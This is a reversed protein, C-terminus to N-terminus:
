TIWSNNRTYRYPGQTIFEDKIGSTNKTGLTHVGWYFLMTGLIILPIAILFRDPSLLIWRDWDIFILLANLGFVMYFLVWTIIFQWSKKKPPPWIRRTPSAVSWIVGALLIYLCITDILFIEFKISIFLEIM